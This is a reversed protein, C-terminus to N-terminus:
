PKLWVQALPHTGNSLDLGTSNDPLTYRTLNVVRKSAILAVQQHFLWVYPVDAALRKQVIAYAARFAAPEPTARAAKLAAGIEEDKLRTFNLSFAPPAVALDPRWYVSDLAPNPNGFQIWATSQYRGTVVSIILAAQELTEITVNIGVESWQAQLMQVLQQM